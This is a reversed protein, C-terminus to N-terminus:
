QHGTPALLKLTPNRDTLRKLAAVIEPNQPSIHAAQRYAEQATSERGASEAARAYELWLSVNRPDDALAVRYKGLANTWRSLRADIRAAAAHAEGASGYTSYLAMELGRLARDAAQWREYRLVLDLRSRQIDLNEPYRLAGADLVALAPEVGAAGEALKLRAELFVMEPADVRLARAKAFTVAAAAPQGADLELQGRVLLSPGRPAGVADAQDLVAVADAFRSMKRLFAAVEIIRAPESTAIAALEEAKAGANFLETLAANLMQPRLTVASRWELLAQARMGFRWLTRAVEAHVEECGPCLRLARNLAHMRPSSTGKPGALPQVGAYSLAYFYDLPYAIQASELVQRREGAPLSRRLLRDFDDSRTQRTSVGGIILGLCAVAIATTALAPSLRPETRTRGLVTGLIAVFPVSVGPTELGFDVLSHALV